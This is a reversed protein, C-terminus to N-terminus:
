SRPAGIKRQVVALYHRWDYVTHGPGDNSRDIICQHECLVQGDALVLFRDPYIRLSVPWDSVNWRNFGLM